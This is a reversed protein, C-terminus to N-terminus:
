INGDAHPIKLQEIRMHRDAPTTHKRAIFVVPGHATLRPPALLFDSELSVVIIPSLSPTTFFDIRAISVEADEMGVPNHGGAWPQRAQKWRPNDYFLNAVAVRNHRIDARRISIAAVANRNSINTHHHGLTARTECGRAKPRVQATQSVTFHIQARLAPRVPALSDM